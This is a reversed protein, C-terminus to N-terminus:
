IQAGKAKCERVIGLYVDNNDPDSIFDLVDQLTRGLPIEGFFYQDKGKTIVHLEKAMTRISLFNIDEATGGALELFLALNNKKFGYPIMRKDDTIKRVITAKVIEPESNKVPVGMAKLIDCQKDYTMVALYEFAKLTEDADKGVEENDKVATSLTYSTVGSLAPNYKEGKIHFKLDDKMFNIFLRHLPDGDDLNENGNHVTFVLDDHSFFPDRENRPNATKIVENKDKDILGIEEVIKNLEDKSLNIAYSRTRADYPIRIQALTGPITNPKYEGLSEVLGTDRDQKYLQPKHRASMFMNQKSYRLSYINGM